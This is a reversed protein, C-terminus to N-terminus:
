FLCKVQGSYRETKSNLQFDISGDRQLIVELWQARSRKGM